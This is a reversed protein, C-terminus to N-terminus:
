EHAHPGILVGRCKLEEDFVVDLEVVFLRLHYVASAHRTKKDCLNVRVIKGFVMLPLGPDPRTRGKSFLALALLTSIRKFCLIVRTMLSFGVEPPTSPIEAVDSLLVTFMRARLPTIM